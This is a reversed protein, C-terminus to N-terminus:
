ASRLMQAVSNSAASAILLHRGGRDVVFAGYVDRHEIAAGADSESSYRKVDVADEAGRFLGLGATSGVYAVPVHHPKPKHAPLVFAGVFLALVLVLGAVAKPLTLTTM